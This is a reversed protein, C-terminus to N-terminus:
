LKEIIKIDNNFRFKLINELTESDSKESEFLILYTNKSVKVYFDSKRIKSSIDSQSKILLPIFMPNRRKRDLVILKLALEMPIENKTPLEALKEFLNLDNKKLQQTIMLIQMECLERYPVVWEEDLGELLEGKYIKAIEDRTKKSPSKDMLKQFLIYDIKLKSVDLYVVNRDIKLSDKTLNLGKRIMYLLTNLNKRSYSEDYGEFFVNLIESVFVKRKYNLILYYLIHEAKKSKLVIKESQFYVGYEKGFLRIEM